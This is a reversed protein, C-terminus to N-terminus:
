KHECTPPDQDWKLTRTTQDIECTLTREESLEYGEGCKFTATSGPRSFRASYMVTGKEIM